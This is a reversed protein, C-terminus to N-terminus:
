GKLICFRAKGTYNGPAAGLPVAADFFVEKEEGAALTFSSPTISIWEAVESEVDVAVAADRSHEIRVSRSASVGPSVAGFNLHDTDTNMGLLARGSITRVALSLNVERETSCPEPVAPLLLVALVAIVAAALALLAPVSRIFQM